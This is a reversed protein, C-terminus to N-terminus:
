SGVPVATDKIAVGFGMYHLEPLEIKPDAIMDWARTMDETLRTDDFVIFGGDRVFPRFRLYDGYAAAYNHEGDIFLLDFLEGTPRWTLSDGAYAEISLTHESAIRAVNPACGPDIDLTVAHAGGSALHLAGAGTRTGIELARKVGERAVVLQLFYYYPEGPHSAMEQLWKVRTDTETCFQRCCEAALERLRLLRENSTM